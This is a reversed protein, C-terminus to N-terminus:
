ARATKRPGYDCLPLVYSCERLNKLTHQLETMWHERAKDGHLGHLDPVNQTLQSSRRRFFRQMPLAAPKMRRSMSVERHPVFMAVSGGGMPHAEKGQQFRADEEAQLWGVWPFPGSQKDGTKGKNRKLSRRLLLSAWKKTFFEQAVVTKQPDGKLVCNLHTDWSIATTRSFRWSLIKPIDQLASAEKIWCCLRKCVNHPERKLDHEERSAIEESM